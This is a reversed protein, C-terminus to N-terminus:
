NRRELPSNTGLVVCLHWDKSPLNLVVTPKLQGRNELADLGERQTSRPASRRAWKVRSLDFGLAEM